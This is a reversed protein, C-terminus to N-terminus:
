SRLTAQIEMYEDRDIEGDAYREQLIEEPTKYRRALAHPEVPEIRSRTSFGGVGAAIAVVAGIFLLWVLLMGGGFFMM